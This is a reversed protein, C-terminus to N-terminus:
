YWVARYLHYHTITREV